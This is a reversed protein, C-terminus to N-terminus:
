ITEEYKVSLKEVVDGLGSKGIARPFHEEIADKVIAAQDTDTVAALAKLKALMPKPLRFKAIKRGDKGAGNAGRGKRRDTPPCQEQSEQVGQWLVAQSNAPGDIFALLKSKSAVRPSVECNFRTRLMKLALSNSPDTVVVKLCGDEWGTPLVLHERVLEEPILSAEDITTNDRDLDIYEVGSQRAVAKAIDEEDALGLAVMAEGIRTGNKKAHDLAQGVGRDTVVGLEVLIEGLKQKKKQGM